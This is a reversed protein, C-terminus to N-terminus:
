NGAAADGGSNRDGRDGCANWDLYFTERNENWAGKLTENKSKISINNQIILNDYLLLIALQLIWKKAFDHLNRIWIIVRYSKWEGCKSIM